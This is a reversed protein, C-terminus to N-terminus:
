PLVPDEVWQGLGPISDTNDHISTPNALWQAVVPIGSSLWKLKKQKLRYVKSNRKRVKVNASVMVTLM